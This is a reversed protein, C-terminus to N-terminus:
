PHLPAASSIRVEGRRARPRRRVPNEEHRQLNMEKGFRGILSAAKGNVRHM